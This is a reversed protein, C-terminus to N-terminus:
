PTQGEARIELTLPGAFFDLPLVGAADDILYGDVILDVRGPHRGAESGPRLREAPARPDTDTSITNTASGIDTGTRREEAPDIDTMLLHEEGFSLYLQRVRGEPGETSVSVTAYGLTVGDDVRILPNATAASRAEDIAIAADELGIVQVSVTRGAEEFWLGGPLTALSTGAPVNILLLTAAALM